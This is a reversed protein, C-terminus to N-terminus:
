IYICLAPLSQPAFKPKNVRYAAPYILKGYVMTKLGEPSLRTFSKDQRLVDGHRQTATHQPSSLLAAAVCFLSVSQTPGPLTRAAKEMM